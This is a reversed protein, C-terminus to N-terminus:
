GELVPSPVLSGSGRIDSGKLAQTQYSPYPTFGSPRRRAVLSEASISPDGDRCPLLNCTRQRSSLPLLTQSQSSMSKREQIDLAHHPHDIGPHFQRPRPPRWLQLHSQLLAVALIQISACSATELTSQAAPAYCSPIVPRKLNHNTSPRVPTCRDPFEQCGAHNTM